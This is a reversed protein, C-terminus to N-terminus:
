PAAPLGTTRLRSVLQASTARPSQAALATLLGKWADPLGADVASRYAACSEATRGQELYLAGLAAYAETDGAACGRRYAREAAATDGRLERVRGLATWADSAGLAAARRVARRERARQEIAARRQEIGEEAYDAALTAVASPVTDHVRFVRRVGSKSRVAVVRESTVVLSVTGGKFHVRKLAGVLVGLGTGDIDEVASLDIVFILRGDEALRVLLTRLEPATRVDLLDGEVRVVTIDGPQDEYSVKLQM